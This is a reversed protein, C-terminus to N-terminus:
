PERVMRQADLRNGAARGDRGDEWRWAERELPFAADEVAEAFKLLPEPQTCEAAIQRLRVVLASAETIASQYEAIDDHDWADRYLTDRASRLDAPIIEPPQARLLHLTV